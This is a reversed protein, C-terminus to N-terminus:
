IEQIELLAIKSTFETVKFREDLRKGVVWIIEGDGNILLLSEKKQTFSLKLDSFYDQIKKRGDMGIPHFKDGEDWNRIKLPFILKESDVLENQRSKSFSSSDSQYISIKKGNVFIFDNVSNIHHKGIEVPLPELWFEGPKLTLIHSNSFYKTENTFNYELYKAWIQKSTQYSFNYGLLVEFLLETKHMITDLFNLNIKHCKESKLISSEKIRKVYLALVESGMKLNKISQISTKVLNPNIFELRPIINKRIYNRSYKDNSNSSDEIFPVNHLHAYQVIEQKTLSLMPRLVNQNIPPIGSIGRIGTGKTINYLITELNDNAHHATLTYDLKLDERMEEFWDYRMGRAAEQISLKNEIAVKEASRKQIKLSINNTACYNEVFAQDEESEKGRLKFNYHAVVIQFQHSNLIHLLVMSDVGGSVGILFSPNVKKDTLHLLSEICAKSLKEEVM